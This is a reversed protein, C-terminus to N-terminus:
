EQAGKLPRPPPLEEKSSSGSSSPPAAPSLSKAPADTIPRRGGPSEAHFSIWYEKRLYPAMEDNPDTYGFYSEHARHGETGPKGNWVFEERDIRYGGPCKASILKEARSRYYMPWCDSNMPMAIVGGNPMERVIRVDACGCVIPLLLSALMGVLQMRASVERRGMYEEAGDPRM